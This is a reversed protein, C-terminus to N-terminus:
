LDLDFTDSKNSKYFHTLCMMLHCQIFIKDTTKSNFALKECPQLDLDFMM